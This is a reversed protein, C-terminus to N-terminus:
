RVEHFHHTISLSYKKCFNFIVLDQHIEDYYITINVYSSHFYHKKNSHDNINDDSDDNIIIQIPLSISSSSLTTSSSSSSLNNTGDTQVVNTSIVYCGKYLHLIIDHMLIIFVIFIMMVIMM